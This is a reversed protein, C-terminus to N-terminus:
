PVEGKIDDNSPDPWPELDCGVEMPMELHGQGELVDALSCSPHMSTLALLGNRRRFVARETILTDVCARATLPLTCRPVLKPRGRKDLHRSIVVVQRAKQALEMGGGMGPTLRGPIKWNALDGELSVQFAGLIAMDLHGGRVIAFSLVSDFFAGGPLLSCAQGGADIIPDDPTGDTRSPGMGVFGNESHLVVHVGHPLSHPIHTPLGIGLNVLMGDRLELAARSVIRQEDADLQRANM